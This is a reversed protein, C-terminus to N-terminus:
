ITNFNVNSEIKQTQSLPIRVVSSVTFQMFGHIDIGNNQPRKIQSVLLPEM